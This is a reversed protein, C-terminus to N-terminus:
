TIPNAALWEAVSFCPCAKKTGPVDRHGIIKATPHKRRLETLLKHLSAFQAPTFNNEPKGNDGKGGAMCIGLSTQNVGRAHSGQADEPRGKEIVGNRRIVFHYGISLWGQQRHWKDIESAGIDASARTDSAHVVLFDVRKLKAYNM